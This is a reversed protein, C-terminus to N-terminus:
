FSGMRQCYHGFVLGRSDRRTLILLKNVLSRTAITITSQALMDVFIDQAVYHGEQKSGCM